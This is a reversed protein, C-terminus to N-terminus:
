FAEIVHAEGGDADYDWIGFVTGSMNIWDSPLTWTHQPYVAYDFGTPTISAAGGQKIYLTGRITNNFVTMTRRTSAFIGFFDLQPSFVTTATVSLQIFTSRNPPPIVYLFPDGSARPHVLDTPLDLRPATLIGHTVQADAFVPVDAGALIISGTPTGRRLLTSLNFFGQAVAGNIFVVRFYAARVRGDAFTDNAGFSQRLSIEESIGDNSWQLQFGEFASSVNTDVTAVVSTYDTVRVFVGTFTAGAGLPTTSSNEPSAVNVDLQQSIGM